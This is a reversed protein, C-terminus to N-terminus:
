VTVTFFFVTFIDFGYVLHFIVHIMPSFDDAFSHFAIKLKIAYQLHSPLSVNIGFCIEPLM